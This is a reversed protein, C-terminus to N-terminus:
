GYILVHIDGIDEVKLKLGAQSLQARIEDSTFAACLSNYFDQKLVEPEDGSLEEVLAAVKKESAPRRLDAVFVFTNKTKLQKVTDWLVKPEHLHHLLSHSMIVSYDQKPIDDSPIFTRLFSMRKSLGAKGMRRRSLELMPESGDVGLFAANKFKKSFRELIDGSGCGLDLVTGTVDRGYREAFLEVRRGHPESFDAQDYAEAQEMTEMLEPEPIRKMRAIKILM